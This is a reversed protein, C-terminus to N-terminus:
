CAAHTQYILGSGGSFSARHSAIGAKGQKDRDHGCQRRARLRHGKATHLEPADYGAPRVRTGTEGNWKWEPSVAFTDGDIISTVSFVPM